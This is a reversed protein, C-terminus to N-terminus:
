YNRSRGIGGGEHGRHKGAKPRYPKQHVPAETEVQSQAVQGRQRDAKPKCSGLKEVAEGGASGVARPGDSSTLILGVRGYSSPLRPQPRNIRCDHGRHKDTKPRYPGVQEPAEAEASGVARTVVSSTLRRDIRGWSCRMRPKPMNRRGNHGRQKDDKLTCPGLQESTEAEASGVARTGVSCALRQGIRSKTCRLRPKLKIKPM